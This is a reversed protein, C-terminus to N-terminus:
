YLGGLCLLVSCLIPGSMCVGEFRKGCVEPLYLQWRGSRAVETCYEVFYVARERINRERLLSILSFVASILMSCFLFWFIQSVSFYGSCVSLLKVDGAGLGGIRFLPYLLILVGAVSLLYLVLREAGGIYVSRVIGLAMIFVQFLNPIKGKTYDFLCAICLSACLVVM